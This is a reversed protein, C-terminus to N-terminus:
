VTKLCSKAPKTQNRYHFLDPSSNTPNNTVPIPCFHAPKTQNRYSSPWGRMGNESLIQSTKTQNRYPSTRPTPPAQGSDSLIPSTKDSKPLSLRLLFL